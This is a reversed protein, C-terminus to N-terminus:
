VHLKERLLAEKLDPTWDVELLLSTHDQVEPHLKKFHKGAYKKQNCGFSCLTCQYLPLKLHKSFQHAKLRYNYPFKAGCVECVFKKDQHTFLLHNKLIDGSPTIFDCMNCKRWTEPRSPDCKEKKVKAPRHPPTPRHVGSPDSSKARAKIPFHEPHQEKEHNLRDLFRPTTFDCFHCKYDAKQINHRVREHEQLNYRYSFTMNCFFCSFNKIKKHVINIHNQLKYPREFHKGCHECEYKVKRTCNSKIHSRLDAAFKCKYGCLHCCYDNPKNHVAEIHKKLM